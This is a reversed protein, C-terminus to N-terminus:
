DTKLALKLYKEHLHNIKVSLSSKDGDNVLIDDAKKLREEQSVQSAIIKEVQVKSVADREQTRRIQTEKDVDVVLIRDCLYELRNEFLLPVVFLGYTSNIETLQREMEQRILPHLLGNLWAKEQSDNFIIERLKARDLTKNDLLISEGFHNIIEHLGISNPEVVERAVIDADVLQIGKDAFMDAVTSKGSAIGGTLGIIYRKKGM